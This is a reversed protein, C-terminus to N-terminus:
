HAENQKGNNQEMRLGNGAGVFRKSLPDLAYDFHSEGGDASQRLQIRPARRGDDVIHHGLRHFLRWVCVSGFNSYLLLFDGPNEKARFMLM